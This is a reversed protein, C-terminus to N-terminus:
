NLNKVICNPCLIIGENNTIKHMISGYEPNEKRINQWENEFFLICCTPINCKIGIWFYKGEKM